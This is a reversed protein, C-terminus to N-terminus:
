DVRPMSQEGSPRLARLAGSGFNIVAAPNGGYPAGTFADAQSFSYWTPMDEGREGGAQIVAWSSRRILEELAQQQPSLVRDV